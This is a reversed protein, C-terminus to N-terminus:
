LLRAREFQFQEFACINKHIRSCFKYHYRLTVGRGAGEIGWSIGRYFKDAINEFDVFVESHDGFNIVGRIGVLGYGAVATYLPVLTGNNSRIKAKSQSELTFRWDAPM